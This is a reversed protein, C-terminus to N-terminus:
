QLLFNTSSMLKYLTANIGLVPATKQLDVTQSIKYITITGTPKDLQLCDVITAEILQFLATIADSHVYALYTAKKLHHSQM